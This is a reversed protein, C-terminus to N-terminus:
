PIDGDLETRARLTARAGRLAREYHRVDPRMAAAIALYEVARQFEGLRTLSLGLGFHAYDDNPSVDVIRRFSDAADAYRRSDYQARALGERISRSEPEADAARELLQSAAQPSGSSLLEMGRQYWEYVEGGPGDGGERSDWPPTSGQSM